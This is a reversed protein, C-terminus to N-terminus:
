ECPAEWALLDCIEIIPCETKIDWEESKQNLKGKVEKVVCGDCSWDIVSELVEIPVKEFRRKRGM